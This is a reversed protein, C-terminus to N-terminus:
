QELKLYKEAEELTLFVIVGLDERIDFNIWTNEDDCVTIIPSLAQGITIHDIVGCKVITNIAKRIKKRETLDDLFYVKEGPLCPIDFIM